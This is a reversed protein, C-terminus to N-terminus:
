RSPSGSQNKLIDSIIDEIMINNGDFFIKDNNILYLGQDAGVLRFNAGDQKLFMIYKKNPEFETMDEKVFYFAQGFKVIIIGKDLRGKIFKNVEVVAVDKSIFSKKISIVKGIIILNSINVKEEFSYIILKAFANLSLLIVLVILIISSYRKQTIGCVSLNRLFM